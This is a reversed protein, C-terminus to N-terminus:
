FWSSDKADTQVECDKSALSLIAVATCKLIVVFWPKSVVISTLCYRSLLHVTDDEGTNKPRIVQIKFQEQM